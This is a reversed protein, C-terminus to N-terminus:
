FLLAPPSSPPPPLSSPLPSAPPPTAGSPVNSLLTSMKKKNVGGRSTNSIFQPAKPAFPELQKQRSDHKPPFPPTLAPVVSRAKRHDIYAHQLTNVCRVTSVTRRSKPYKRRESFRTKKPPPQDQQQHHHQHQRSKQKNKKCRRCSPPFYLKLEGCNWTNGYM